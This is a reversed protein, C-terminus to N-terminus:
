DTALLEAEWLAEAQQEAEVPIPWSLFKTEWQFLEADESLEVGILEHTEEDNILVVCYDTASEQMFPSVALPFIAWQERHLSRSLAKTYKKGPAQGHRLPQSCASLADLLTGEVDEPVFALEPFVFGFAEKRWERCVFQSTSAKVRVHFSMPVSGSADEGYRWIQFSSAELIELCRVVLTGTRPFLWHRHKPLIVDLQSQIIELSEM